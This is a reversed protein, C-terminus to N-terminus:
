GAQGTRRGEEAGGAAARGGPVPGHPRPFLVRPAQHRGPSPLSPRSYPYRVGQPLPSCTHADSCHTPVPPLGHPRPLLVRPARHRGQPFPNATPCLSSCRPAAPIVAPVVAGRASLEHSVSAYPIGYVTYTFGCARASAHWCCGMCAWPWGGGVLAAHGNGGVGVRAARRPCGVVLRGGRADM